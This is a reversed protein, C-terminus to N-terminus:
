KLYNYYIFTNNHKKVYLTNKKSGATVSGSALGISGTVLYVMGVWIGTGNFVEYDRYVKHNTIASIGVQFQSDYFM